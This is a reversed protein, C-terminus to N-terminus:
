FNNVVEKQQSKVEYLRAFDCDMEYGCEMIGVVKYLFCKRGAVNIEPVIRCANGIKILSGKIEWGWVIKADEPYPGRWNWFIRIIEDWDNRSLEDIDDGLFYFLYQPIKRGYVERIFELKGDSDQWSSGTLLPLADRVIAVAIRPLFMGMFEGSVAKVFSRRSIRWRLYKIVELSVITFVMIWVVCLAYFVTNSVIKDELSCHLTVDLGVFQQNKFIDGEKLDSFFKINESIM